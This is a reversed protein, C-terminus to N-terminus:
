KTNWEQDNNTTKSVKRKNMNMMVGVKLCFNWSWERFNECVSELIIDDIFWSEWTIRSKWELEQFVVILVKYWKVKGREM